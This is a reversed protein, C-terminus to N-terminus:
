SVIRVRDLESKLLDFSEVDSAYSEITAYVQEFAQDDMEFVYRKARLQDSDNEMQVPIRVALEPKCILKLANEQGNFPHWVSDSAVQFVAGLRFSAGDKVEVADHAVVFVVDGVVADNGVAENITELQTADKMLLEAFQTQNLHLMWSRPSENDSIEAGILENYITHFHVTSHGANELLEIAKKVAIISREKDKKNGTKKYTELYTAALLGAVDIDDSGFMSECRKLMEGAQEVQGTKLMLYSVYVAYADHGPFKGYLKLAYNLATGWRGLDVQQHMRWEDFFPNNPFADVLYRMVSEIEDYQGAHFLHLIYSRAFIYDFGVAEDAKDADYGEINLGCRSALRYRLEWAYMNNINSLAAVKLEAAQVDDLELDIHGKLAFYTNQYEPESLGRQTLHEALSRLAPRDEEHGLLEIWLRYLPLEWENSPHDALVKSIHEIATRPRGSWLDNLGARYDRESM